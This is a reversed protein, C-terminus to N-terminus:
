RERIIHDDTKSTYSHTEYREVSSLLSINDDNGGLAYLKGEVVGVGFWRRASSMPAMMTWTDTEPDYREWAAIGGGGGACLVGNGLVAVMARETTVKESEVVRAEEVYRVCWVVGRQFWPVHTLVGAVLNIKEQKQTVQFGVEMQQQGRLAEIERQHNGQAQLCRALEQVAGEDLDRVRDELKAIDQQLAKVEEERRALEQKRQLQARTTAERKNDTTTTRQLSLSGDLQVAAQVQVGELELLQPSYSNFEQEVPGCVLHGLAGQVEASPGSGSSRPGTGSSPQHAKSAKNRSGRGEHSL